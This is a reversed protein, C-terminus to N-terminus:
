TSGARVCLAARLDQVLVNGLRGLKRTSTDRLSEGLAEHRGVLGDDELALLTAELVSRRGYDSHHVIALDKDAVSTVRLGHEALPVNSVVM